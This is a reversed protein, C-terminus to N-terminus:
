FRGLAVRVGLQDYSLRAASRYSWTRGADLSLEVPWRAHRRALTVRVTGAIASAAFVLDQGPYKEPLRVLLRGVSLPSSEGEISLRWRPRLDMAATAGVFVERLQSNTTEPSTVDTALLLAGNRTVTKHGLQFDALDIRLRFGGAFTVAGAHGIDAKQVIRLSRM